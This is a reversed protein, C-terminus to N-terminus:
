REEEDAPMMEALHEMQLIRLEERESAELGAAKQRADLENMRDIREKEM